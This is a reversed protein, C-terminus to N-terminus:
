STWLTNLLYAHPGQAIPLNPLWEGSRVKQILLNHNHELKDQLRKREKSFKLHQVKKIQDVVMKVKINRGISSNDFTYDFYEEFIEFGLNKLKQNVGEPGLIIFPRKHYIPLWTKETVFDLDHIYTETVVSFLSDKFCAPTNWYGTKDIGDIYLPKNQRYEFVYDDESWDWLNLSVYNNKILREKAFLDVLLSRYQRKKGNLCTFSKNIKKNHGVVENSHYVTKYAWFYYFDKNLIVIIKKGIREGLLKIKDLDFPIGVEGPQWLYIIDEEAIHMASNAATTSLTSELVDFDYSHKKVDIHM